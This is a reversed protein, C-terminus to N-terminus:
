GRWGGGGAAPPDPRSPSPMRLSGSSSIGVPRPAPAGGGNRIPAARTCRGSWPRAPARTSTGAGSAEAGEPGAGRGRGKVREESLQLQSIGVRKKAELQLESTLFNGPASLARRQLSRHGAGGRQCGARRRRRDPVSALHLDALPVQSSPQSAHVVARDSGADRDLRHSGVGGLSRPRAEGKESTTRFSSANRATM